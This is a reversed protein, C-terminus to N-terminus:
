EWSNVPNKYDFLLFQCNMYDVFDQNVLMDASLRWLSPGKNSDPLKFLGVLYHDSFSIHQCYGHLSIM